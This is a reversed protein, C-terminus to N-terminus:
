YRSNEEMPEKGIREMEEKVHLVVISAMYTPVAVFPTMLDGGGM